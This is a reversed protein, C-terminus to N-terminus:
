GRRLGGEGTGSRMASVAVSAGSVAIRRPAADEAVGLSRGSPVLESLAVTGVAPQQIWPSRSDGASSKVRV